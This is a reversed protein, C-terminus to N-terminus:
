LFTENESSVMCAQELFPQWGSIATRSLSIIEGFLYLIFDTFIVRCNQNKQGFSVM